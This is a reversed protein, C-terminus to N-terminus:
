NDNDHHPESAQLVGLDYGDSWAEAMATGTEFPNPIWVCSLKAQYGADIGAQRLAAFDINSRTNM